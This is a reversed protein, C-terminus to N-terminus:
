ETKNITCMSQEFFINPNLINKLSTQVNKSIIIKVIKLRIKSNQISISNQIINYEKIYFSLSPM